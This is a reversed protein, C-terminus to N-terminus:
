TSTLKKPVFIPASASMRPKPTKGKMINHINEMMQFNKSAFYGTSDIVNKFIFADPNGKDLGHKKLVLNWERAFWGRLNKNDFPKNVKTTFGFDIIKINNSKTVLINELHLDGHIFGARWLGIIAERVQKVLNVLDQRAEANGKSVKNILQHAVVRFSRANAIYEMAIAPTGNNDIRAAIPRIFYKKYKPDLANYMEKQTILEYEINDDKSKRASKVVYKIDGVRYIRAVGHGGTGIPHRNPRVKRLDLM